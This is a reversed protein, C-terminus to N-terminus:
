GDVRGGSEQCRSLKGTRHDCFNTRAAVMEKRASMEGFFLGAVAQLAGHVEDKHLSARVGAKQGGAFAHNCVGGPGTLELDQQM